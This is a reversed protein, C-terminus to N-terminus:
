IDQSVQQWQGNEVMKHIEVKKADVTFSEESGELAPLTGEWDEEEGQGTFGPFVLARGKM